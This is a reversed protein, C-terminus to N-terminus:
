KKKGSYGGYIYFPMAGPKSATELTLTGNKVAGKLVTEYNKGNIEQNDTIESLTYTGDVGSVKVGKITIAPM